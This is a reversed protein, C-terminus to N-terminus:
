KTIIYNFTSAGPDLTSTVVFSGNGPTIKLVSTPTAQTNFNGVVNSGSTCFADSITNASSGGAVTAGAVSKMRIASTAVVIGGTTAGIDGMTYVTSQGMTGNSITTNFAGGANVATLALFGNAATAPFSVVSAATGSAGATVGTVGTVIGAAASINGATAIIGTGATVTTGASLSTGANITGATTTFNGATLTLSGTAITQTGASNNLVFNAATVGPDPISITSTQGMVSNRVITNFAGGANLAEISLFGNGATAPFSSLFGANGNSGAVVNGAAAIINGATAEINAGSTITGATTAFNGVTLTLSGTAITQTGGSNSLLFNSNAGGDPITYVRAAAQSANTITTVTNGANNAASINLSGSNVTAPFSILSGVTGSLGAQLSGGNIAVGADESITGTTNTYTAIHNIITPLIVNGEGTTPALSWNGNAFSVGFWGANTIKSNPSPKTTVGVITAQSLPINFKSVLTNLYGAVSVQALTDNTSIFVLAPAIGAQGPNNPQVNLIPM